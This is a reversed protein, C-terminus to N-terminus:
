LCARLTRPGTVEPPDEPRSDLHRYLDRRLFIPSVTANLHRGVIQELVRPTASGTGGLLIGHVNATSYSAAQFTVSHFDALTASAAFNGAVVDGPEIIWDATTPVGGSVKFPM